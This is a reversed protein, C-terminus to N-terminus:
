SHAVVKAVSAIPTQGVGAEAATRGHQAYEGVYNLLWRISEQYDDHKQCEM